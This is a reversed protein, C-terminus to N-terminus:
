SWVVDCSPPLAVCSDDARAIWVEGTGGIVIDNVGPRLAAPDIPYAQWQGYFIEQPAGLQQPKGNVEVKLAGGHGVLLLAKSAPPDPILFQKRIEIGPCLKETNPKSSFGSAPGDDQFVEGSKLQLTSGDPSLTINSSVAREYIKAANLRLEAAQAPGLLLAAFVVAGLSHRAIRLRKGNM